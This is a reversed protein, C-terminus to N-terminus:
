QGADTNNYAILAKSIFDPRMPVGDQQMQVKQALEDAAKIKCTLRAVEAEASEARTIAANFVDTRTYSKTKHDHDDSWGGFIWEDAREPIFRWVAITEPMAKGNSM